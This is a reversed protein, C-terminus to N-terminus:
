KKERAIQIAEQIGGFKKTRKIFTKAIELAHRECKARVDPDEISDLDEVHAIGVVRRLMKMGAFGLADSLLVDNLYADQAASNDVARAYLYGSHESPDSWLRKFEGCFVSWFTEIQGLIWEAYDGGNAHGPQSAYALFLNGIFAGLDFGM